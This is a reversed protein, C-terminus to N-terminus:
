WIFPILVRRNEPYDQFRSLFWLHHHYARPGTNCFTFVAFAVAVIHQAALAYGCWELIEGFYNAGTVLEFVGGKPIRYGTEGPKRLGRLVGDSHVNIGLGIAWLVVGGYFTATDYPSDLTRISAATWLRGQIFGNYACFAAALACIGIPMPKGGRMRLPYIFARHAYHGVYLALLVRNPLSALCEPKAFSVLALPVLCSWCEQLLWAAKASILPGYWSASPNDISHRGYPAVIPYGLPNMEVFIVVVGVAWMLHAAHKLLDEESAEAVLAFMADM